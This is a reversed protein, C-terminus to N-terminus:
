CFIIKGHPSFIAGGCYKSSYKFKVLFNSDINFIYLIVTNKLINYVNNISNIYYCISLFYKIKDKEYLFSFEFITRSILNNKM